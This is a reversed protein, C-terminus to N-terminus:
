EDGRGRRRAVWGPVNRQRERAVALAERPVDKTITSGAAVFADPEITVPAVLNVNCGIFARAGV